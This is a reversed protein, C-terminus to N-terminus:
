RIIELVSTFYMVKEGFMKYLREFLGPLINTSYSELEAQSPVRFQLAFTETDTTEDEAHSTMRTLIPSHLGTREEVAPIYRDLYDLFPEVVATEAQFTTNILYM